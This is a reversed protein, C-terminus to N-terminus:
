EWLTCTLGYPNFSSITNDDPDYQFSRCGGLPYIDRICTEGGAVAYPCYGIFGDRKELEIPSGIVGAAAGAIFAVFIKRTVLM